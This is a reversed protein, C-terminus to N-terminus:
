DPEISNFCLKNLLTSSSDQIDKYFDLTACQLLDTLNQCFIASFTVRVDADKSQFALKDNIIVCQGILLKSHKINRKLM